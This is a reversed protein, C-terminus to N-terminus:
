ISSSHEKGEALMATPSELRMTALLFGATGALLLSM